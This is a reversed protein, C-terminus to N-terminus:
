TNRRNLVLGRLLHKTFTFQLHIELYQLCAGSLALQKGIRLFSDDKWGLGMIVLSTFNPPSKFIQNFQALFDNSIKQSGSQDLFSHHQVHSHLESNASRWVLM